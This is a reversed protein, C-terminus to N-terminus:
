KRQKVKLYYAICNACVREKILKRIKDGKTPTYIMFSYGKMSVGCYSKDTTKLIHRKRDVTRM